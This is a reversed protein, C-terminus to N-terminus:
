YKLWIEACVAGLICLIDSRGFTHEILVLPQLQAADLVPMSFMQGLRQRFDPHQADDLFREAYDLTLWIRVALREPEMGLRRLPIFLRYLGALLSPRTLHTMLVSLSALILLLRWIQMLAGHLGPQSPSFAGLGALVPAGPLSYSHVLLLVLLLWRSRRVYRRFHRLGDPILMIGPLVIITLMILGSVADSSAAAIFFLWLVVATAPHCIEARTEAKEM